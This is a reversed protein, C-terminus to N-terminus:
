TSKRGCQMVKASIAYLILFPFAVNMKQIYKRRFDNLIFTANYEMKRHAKKTSFDHLFYQM